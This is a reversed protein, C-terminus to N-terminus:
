VDSSRGSVRSRIRDRLVGLEDCSLGALKTTFLHNAVDNLRLAESLVGRAVQVGEKSAVMACYSGFADEVRDLSTNSM